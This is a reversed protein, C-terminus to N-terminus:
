NIQPFGINLFQVIKILFSTEKLILSLQITLKEGGGLLVLYLKVKEFNVSSFINNKFVELKDHDQNLKYVKSDMVYYLSGTPTAVIHSGDENTHTSYIGLNKSYSLLQKYFKSDKVLDIKKM